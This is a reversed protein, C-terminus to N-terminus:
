QQMLEYNDDRFAEMVRNIEYEAIGLERLLLGGLHLSTEFIEAVALTAGARELQQVENFDAARVIIPLHEDLERIAAITRLSIAIDRHTIIIARAREVGVAKLVLKRGADGYHVPLHKLRAASVADANIDLGLYSIREAELIRALANGIRGYGSIIVHNRLDRSEEASFRVSVSARQAMLRMGKEGLHALLPTLMMTLTTTVLLIQATEVSLVGHEASLRFLVFAFEGGQALLLGAYLANGLSFGFTRGLLTIILAKGLMLAAALLVIAGWEDMLLQLDLGMGVVMFFLGLLIGKFPLIDAEVQPRFETEAVLLGAIFAGLGPSLGVAHCGWAITLVVLLIAATLLENNGLSVIHRFMPRLGARGAVIMLLVVIVALLSMRTIELTLSEQSSTFVGVMVLLPIVMLDQLILNALALRGVQSSRMNKEQMVEMVIATSSLALGGGVIIAGSLPLGAGYAVLAIGFATVLMQATGFGFVQTRLRALRELSLELGISFLLFIVGFEAIGQTTETIQVVALGYPGIVVGALLYGIIPSIRLAGLGIVACVAASLMIVIEFLHIHAPPM